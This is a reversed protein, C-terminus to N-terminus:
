EGSAETKLSIKWEKLSPGQPHRQRSHMTMPPRHLEAILERDIKAFYIDEAAQEALRLKEVLNTM